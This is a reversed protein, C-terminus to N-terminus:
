KEWSGSLMVLQQTYEDTSVPLTKAFIREKKRINEPIEGTSPDALRIREWVKRDAPNDSAYAIIDKRKENFCSTMLFLGILFLIKNM